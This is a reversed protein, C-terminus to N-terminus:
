LKTGEVKKVGPLVAGAKSLRNVAIQVAERVDAQEKVAELAKAYDEIVYTTQPKLGTRRGGRQGGVMTKEVKPAEPVLAAVPVAEIQKATEEDHRARAEAVAAQRKAEAEAELKKREAEAAERKKHDEEDLYAKLPRGIEVSLTKIADILRLYKDDILRCQELYPAKEAGHATKLTGKDGSLKALQDRVNQAKNATTEDTIGGIVTKHFASATELYSTAEEIPGVGAKEANDGVVSGRAEPPTIPFPGEGKVQSPITPNALVEAIPTVDGPWEGTELVTKAVEPRIHKGAVYDWVEIAKMERREPGIHCILEWPMENRNPMIVAVTDVGRTKYRYFGAEPKSVGLPLKEGRMRRRYDNYAPHNPNIANM